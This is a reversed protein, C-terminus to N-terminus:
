ALLDGTELPTSRAALWEQRIAARRRGRDDIPLRLAALVDMVEQQASQHPPSSRGALATDELTDLATLGRPYFARYVSREAFGDILRYGLRLGLECLSKTVHETDPAAPQAVRNRMVIWDIFEQSAAHRQRERRADRVLEAYHSSGTLTLCQPDIEGLVDFDVYSDNIPTVLTDAMAHALRMLYSDTGPTDIVVFDHTHEIEDIADAFGAFELAENDDVKIGEARTVCFHTPIELAIKAYRAWARRHAVYHTLSAQRSDLDITVVRQGAKMLAVAIHMATTSKGSGGKENGIVIVHASRDRRPLATLLM